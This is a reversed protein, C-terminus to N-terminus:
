LMSKMLTQCACSVDCMLPFAYRVCFQRGSGASGRQWLFPLTVAASACLAGLVMYWYKSMTEVDFSGAEKAAFALLSPLPLVVMYQYSFLSLGCTVAVAGHVLPWGICLDVFRLTMFDTRPVLMAPYLFALHFIVSLLLLCSGAAPYAADGGSKLVTLHM